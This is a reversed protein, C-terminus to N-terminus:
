HGIKRGTLFGIFGSLITNGLMMAVERETENFQHSLVMYGCAILSAIVCLNAVIFIILDKLRRHKGDEISEKSPSSVNFDIGKEVFAVFDMMM